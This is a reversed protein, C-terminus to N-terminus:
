RPRDHVAMVFAAPDDRYPLCRRKGHFLREHPCGGACIPLWVCERCEGDPLPNAMNLYCSLLDPHDATALPDRPDWEHATGFSYRSKDVAEWCKFLRGVPDIGVGWLCSASCFRAQGRGFRDSDQQLRVDLEAGGCVVGLNEGRGESAESSWVTAPYYRLDNGSEEALQGVFARLGAVQDYNGVHVNHRVNVVFPLSLDRLNSVIREFTAGGGALHRTADHAAGLGDLTVLASHVEMRGLMDAIGQTLLYGNTVISANYAVGWSRALALIRESLSEIIGPALLPEGGFWNIQIEKAGSAELMRGALAVVDDQVEDSMFGPARDEFCYPCAFNCALTPCITLGIASPRACEIRATAELAAREDFNAILGHRALLALAPHNGDLEEVVSLLYRELSTIEHCTGRLLNVMVTKDSGPLQAEVNYRSAHWPAEGAKHGKVSTCTM